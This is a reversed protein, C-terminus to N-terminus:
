NNKMSKTATGWVTGNKLKQEEEESKYALKMGYIPVFIGAVASVGVTVWPLAKGAKHWFSMEKLEDNLSKWYNFYETYEDGPGLKAMYAECNQIENKLFAKRPNEKIKIKM